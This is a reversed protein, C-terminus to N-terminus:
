RAGTLVIFSSGRSAIGVIYQREAIGGQKKVGSTREFRRLRKGLRSARM